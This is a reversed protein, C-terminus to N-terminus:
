SQTPCPFESLTFDSWLNGYKAKIQHRNSPVSQPRKEDSGVYMHAYHSKCICVYPCFLMWFAKKSKRLFFHSSSKGSIRHNRNKQRGIMYNVVSAKSGTLGTQNNKCTRRIWSQRTRGGGVFATMKVEKKEGGTRKHPHRPLAKKPVSFFIHHFGASV